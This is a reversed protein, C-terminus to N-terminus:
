NVGNHFIKVKQQCLRSHKNTQLQPVAAQQPRPEPESQQEEEADQDPHPYGAGLCLYLGVVLAWGFKVCQM